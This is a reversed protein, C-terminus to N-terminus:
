TVSGLEVVNFSVEAQRWCLWSSSSSSCCSSFSGVWSCFHSSSPRLHLFLFLIQCRPLFCLISSSSFWLLPLLPNQYRSGRSVIPAEEGITKPLCLALHHPHHHCHNKLAQSVRTWAGFAVRLVPLTSAVNQLSMLLLWGKSIYIKERFFVCSLRSEPICSNKRLEASCIISTHM